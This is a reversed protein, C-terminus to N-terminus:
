LTLTTETKDTDVITIVGSLKRDQRGKKDAYLLSKADRVYNLRKAEKAYLFSLYQVNKGDQFASYDVGINPNAYSEGLFTSVACAVNQAIAYPNKTTAIDGKDDLGIDWSETDLLLSTTNIM